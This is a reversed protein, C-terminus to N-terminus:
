RRIWIFGQFYRGLHAWDWYSLSFFFLIFSSNFFLYFFLFLHAASLRLHETTDIKKKDKVKTGGDTIMKLVQEPRLLGILALEMSKSSTKVSGSDLGFNLVGSNSDSNSSDEM